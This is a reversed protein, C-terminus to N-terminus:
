EALEKRDAATKKREVADKLLQIDEDAQINDDYWIKFYPDSITALRLNDDFFLKGFRAQVGSLVAFVMAKCHVISSDNSFKEFHEQLCAITPLLCGISMAEENQLTDLADTFPEMIMIYEAIFAKDTDTLLKIKFETFVEDLEDPKTQIFHHVRRFAQYLSNWRTKIYIVLRKGLKEAIFDAAKSSRSQKNWLKQLKTDVKKKKSNFISDTINNIDTTAVLNLSHCSCKDHRPLTVDEEEDSDSDSSSSAASGTASAGSVAHGTSSSGPATRETSQLSSSGPASATAAQEEQAVRAEMEKVAHQDFIDAISIFVFDEEDEDEDDDASERQPPALENKGFMKFSKLFNSGNDTTTSHVKSVINFEKHISWMAKAIVDYTHSGTM